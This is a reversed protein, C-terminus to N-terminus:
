VNEGKVWADRESNVSELVEAYTKVTGDPNRNYPNITQTFTKQQRKKKGDVVITRNGWTKVEEFTVRM